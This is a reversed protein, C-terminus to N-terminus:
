RSKVWRRPSKKILLGFIALGLALLFIGIPLIPKDYTGVTTALLGLLLLLTALLFMGKGIFTLNKGFTAGCAACTNFGPKINTGCFGCIM